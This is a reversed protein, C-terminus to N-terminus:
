RRWFIIPDSAKCLCKSGSAREEEYSVLLLLGRAVWLSMILIMPRGWSPFCDVCNRWLLQAYLQGAVPYSPM